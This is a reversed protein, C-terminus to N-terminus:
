REREKTEGKKGKDKKRKKEVKKENKKMKKKKENTEEDLFIFKSIYLVCDGTRRLFREFSNRYM